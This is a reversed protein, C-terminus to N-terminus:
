GGENGTNQYELLKLGKPTVLVQRVIKEQENM